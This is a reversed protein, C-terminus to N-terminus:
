TYYNLKLKIHSIRTLKMRCLTYGRAINAITGFFPALSSPIAQVHSRAVSSSLHFVISCGRCTSSSLLSPLEPIIVVNFYCQFSWLAILIIVHCNQLSLIMVITHCQFSLFFFHHCRSLLPMIFIAVTPHHCSFLLM